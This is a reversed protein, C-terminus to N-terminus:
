FNCTVYRPTLPSPLITFTCHLVEACLPKTSFGQHVSGGHNGPEFEVSLCPRCSVFLWQLGHCVRQERCSALGSCVPLRFAEEWHLSESCHLPTAVYRLLRLRVVRCFFFGPREGSTCTCTPNRSTGPLIGSLELDVKLNPCSSSRCSRTIAHALSHNCRM